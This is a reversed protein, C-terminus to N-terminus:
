LNHVLKDKKLIFVSVSILSIDHIPGMPNESVCIIDSITGDWLNSLNRSKICLTLIIHTVILFVIQTTLRSLPPFDVTDTSNHAWSLWLLVMPRPLVSIMTAEVLTVEASYHSTFEWCCKPSSLVCSSSTSDTFYM